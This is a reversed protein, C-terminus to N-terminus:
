RMQCMGELGEDIEKEFKEPDKPLQYEKAEEPTLPKNFFQPDWDRDPTVDGGTDVEYWTGDIYVFDVDFGEPSTGTEIYTITPTAGSIKILFPEEQEKSPEGVGWVPDFSRNEIDGGVPPAHYKHGFPDIYTIPNNGVFM